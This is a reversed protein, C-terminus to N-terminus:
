GVKVYRWGLIVLRLLTAASIATQVGWTANFPFGENEYLVLDLPWGGIAASRIHQNLASKSAASPQNNGGFDPIIGGMEGIADLPIPNFTKAISPLTYTVFGRNTKLIRDLDRVIGAASPAADADNTLEVLPVLFLKLGHFKQGGPIVGAPVNTLSLDSPASEAGQFFKLPAAVAQGAQPFSMTSYLVDVFRLFGDVVPTRARELEAGSLPAPLQNFM